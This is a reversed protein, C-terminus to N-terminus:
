VELPVLTHEDEVRYLHDLYYPAFSLDDDNVGELDAYQSDHKSQLRYVIKLAEADSPAQFEIGDEYAEGYCVSPGFVVSDLAGSIIYNNM